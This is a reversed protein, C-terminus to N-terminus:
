FPFANSHALIANLLVSSLRFFLLGHVFALISRVATQGMRGIIAGTTNVNQAGRQTRFPARTADDIVGRLHHGDSHSASSAEVGGNCLFVSGLIWCLVVKMTPM